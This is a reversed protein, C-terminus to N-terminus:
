SYFLNEYFSDDSIVDGDGGGSDASFDGDYDADDSDCITM